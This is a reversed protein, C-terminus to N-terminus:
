YVSGIVSAGYTLSSTNFYAYNFITVYGGLGSYDLDKLEATSLSSGTLFVLYLLKM